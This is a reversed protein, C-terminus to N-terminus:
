PLPSTGIDGNGRRQNYDILSFLELRFNEVIIVRYVNKMNGM